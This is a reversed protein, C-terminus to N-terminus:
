RRGDMEHTATETPSQDRPAPRWGGLDDAPKEATPRPTKEQTAVSKPDSRPEDLRRDTVSLIRTDGEKTGPPAAVTHPPLDDPSPAKPVAMRKPLTQASQGEDPSRTPTRRSQAVTTARVQADSRESRQATVRATQAGRRAPESARGVAEPTDDTMMTGAARRNLVSGARYDVNCNTCAGQSWVPGCDYSPHQCMSCGAALLLSCSIGAITRWANM